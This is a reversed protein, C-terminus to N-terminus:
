HRSNRIPDVNRFKDQERGTTLPHMTQDWVFVGNVIEPGTIGDHAFFSADYNLVISVPVDALRKM